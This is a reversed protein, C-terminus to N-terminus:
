KRNPRDQGNKMNREIFCSSVQNTTHYKNFCLRNVRPNGHHDRWMQHGNQASIYSIGLTNSVEWVWQLMLCFRLLCRHFCCRFVRSFIKLCVSKFSLPLKEVLLCTETWVNISFSGLHFALNIQAAYNCSIALWYSALVSFVATMKLIQQIYLFYVCCTWKQGYNEFTLWLYRVLRLTTKFLGFLTMVRYKKLESASIWGNVDLELLSIQDSICQM